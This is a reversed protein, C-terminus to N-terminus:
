DFRALQSSHRLSISLGVKKHRQVLQGKTEEQTTRDQLESGVGNAQPVPVSKGNDPVEKAEEPASEANLLFKASPDETPAAPTAETAKIDSNPAVVSESEEDAAKANKLFAKRGGGKRGM